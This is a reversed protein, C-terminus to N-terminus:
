KSIVIKKEEKEDHGHGGCCEGGTLQCCNEGCNGTCTKKSIKESTRADRKQFIDCEPESCGKSGDNNDM